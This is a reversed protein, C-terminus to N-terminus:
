INLLIVSFTGLCYGVIQAKTLKEKYMLLAVFFGLVLGGASISPYLIVAPLLGTLVMVFYNVVANAIGCSSSTLLLKKWSKLPKERTILGVASMVVVCIVLAGIMFESKYKGDFDNQQVTLVASCFGNGFFAFMLSIIWKVNIKVREKTYNVLFLSVFLMILGIIGLMGLKNDFAIMGYFTPIILSYSTILLTISLSGYQIALFSGVVASGYSAAFALSYPILELSFNLNFKSFFVFTILACFCSVSSYFFACPKEATSNYFKKLVNQLTVFVIVVVLLLYEM